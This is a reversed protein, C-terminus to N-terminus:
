DPLRDHAEAIEAKLEEVTAPVAMPQAALIRDAAARRAALDDPLADIADRIVDAVSAGRRAAERELRRFQKEDLLMQFRRTLMRM